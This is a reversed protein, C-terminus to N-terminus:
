RTLTFSFSRSSEPIDIPIASGAHNIRAIGQLEVLLQDKAQARASRLQRVLQLTGGGGVPFVGIEQSATLGQRISVRANQIRYNADQPYSQEFERDAEIEFQLVPRSVPVSGGSALEAGGADLVKLSPRPPDIVAFEKMGLYVDDDDENRLYARVSVSSGSPSLSMQRGDVSAGASSELRLPENELGPVDIRIENLTQRYLSQTAVSTAVLEPRRVTFNGRVKTSAMEKNVQKYELVATYSVEKETDEEGLLAGTPMRLLTDGVVSMREDPAQLQVKNGATLYARADYDQGLVINDPGVVIPNVETVAFTTEELDFTSFSYLLIPLYLALM